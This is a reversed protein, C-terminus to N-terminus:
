PLSPPCDAFIGNWCSCDFTPRPSAKGVVRNIYDCGPAKSFSKLKTSCWCEGDLCVREGGPKGESVFWQGKEIKLEFLDALIRLIGRYGAMEVDETYGDGPAPATPFLDPDGDTAEDNRMDVRAEGSPEDLGLPHAFAPQAEQMAWVLCLLFSGPLM